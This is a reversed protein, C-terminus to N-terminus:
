NEHQRDFLEKCVPDCTEATGTCAGVLTKLQDDADAGITAKVDHSPCGGGTHSPCGSALTAVVLRGPADRLKMGRAYVIPPFVAGAATDDRSPPARAPARVAISWAPAPAAPPPRVRLRPPSSAGARWRAATARVPRPARRGTRRPSARSRTAAA